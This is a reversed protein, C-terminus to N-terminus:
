THRKPSLECLKGQIVQIQARTSEPRAGCGRVFLPPWDIMLGPPDSEVAYSFCSCLALVWLVCPPIAGAGVSQSTGPLM